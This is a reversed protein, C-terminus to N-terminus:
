HGRGPRRGGSAAGARRSRDSLAATGAAPPSTATPADTRTAKSRADRWRMSSSAHAHSFEVTARSLPEEAAERIKEEGPRAQQKRDKQRRRQDPDADDIDPREGREEGLAEERDVLKGAEDDVLERQLGIAFQQLRGIEVDDDAGHHHRRRYRQGAGDDGERDGVVRRAVGAAPDLGEEIDRDGQRQPRAIEDTDIRPLQDEGLFADEVPDDAPEPEVGTRSKM